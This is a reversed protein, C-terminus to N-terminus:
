TRSYGCQTSVLGSAVLAALRDLYADEVEEGLVTLRWYPASGLLDVVLDLLADDDAIEGRAAAADLVARARERRPGALSARFAEGLQASRGVEALLDAVIPRLRPLTLWDRMDELV